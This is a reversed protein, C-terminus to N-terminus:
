DYADVADCDIGFRALDKAFLALTGGYADRQVIVREGSKAAALVCCAVASMGSSTALAEEGGELAAVTLELTRANPLGYRSYCYGGLGGLPADSAEISAFDFVSTQYLPEASPTGRLEEPLSEPSPARVTHAAITAPRRKM